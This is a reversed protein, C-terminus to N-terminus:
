LAPPLLLPVPLLAPKLLSLLPSRAGPDLLLLLLLLLLEKAAAYEASTGATMLKADPQM